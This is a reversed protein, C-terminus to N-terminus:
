ASRHLKVFHRSPFVIGLEVVHRMHWWGMLCNNLSPVLLRAWPTVCNRGFIPNFADAACKWRGKQPLLFFLRSSCMDEMQTQFGRAGRVVHGKKQRCNRSRGGTVALNCLPQTTNVFEWQFSPVEVLSRFRLAANSLSNSKICNCKVLLDYIWVLENHCTHIATIWTESM